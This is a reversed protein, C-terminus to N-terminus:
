ALVITANRPQELPHANWVGHFEVSVKPEGGACPSKQVLFPEIATVTIQMFSTLFSSM